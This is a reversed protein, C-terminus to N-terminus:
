VWDPREQYLKKYDISSINENNLKKRYQIWGRFNGTYYDGMPNARAVHEFPSMHGAKILQDCLRLDEKTDRKGDHTEYSIRACRACAVRIREDECLGPEMQDGFPVHLDTRHPNSNIYEKLMKFALAMIEPQADKHCRLKFFNAFDTATLITTVYMWPELLRNTIQKHVGIKEL